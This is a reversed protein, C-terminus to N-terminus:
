TMLCTRSNAFFITYDVNSQIMLQFLDKLLESDLTKLGLKKAWMQDLEAKIAELFGDRIQDLQDLHKPNDMLLPRLAKWFM